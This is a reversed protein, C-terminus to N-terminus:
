GGGETSKKDHTSTHQLKNQTAQVDESSRHLKELAALLEPTEDWEWTEERGKKDVKTYSKLM